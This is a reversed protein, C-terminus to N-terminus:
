TLKQMEDYRQSANLNVIFIDFRDDIHRRRMIKLGQPTELTLDQDNMLKYTLKRILIWGEVLDQLLAHDKLPILLALLSKIINFVIEGSGM